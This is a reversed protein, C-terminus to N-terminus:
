GLSRIHDAMRYAMAIITLTPNEFGCTPFVSSGAIYLNKTGHVRCNEDVVGLKPDTHMRTTGMHHWSGNPPTGERLRKPDDWVDPEEPALIQARGLNSKGIEAAIIEQTRRISRRELDTIRWDLKIRRQGLADLEDGLTVRSMPNPSQEAHSHVPITVWENDGDDSNWKDAYIERLESLITKVQSGLHDPIEGKSLESKLTRWRYQLSINPTRKLTFGSWSNLIREQELVDNRLALGARIETNEVPARIYFNIDIKKPLVLKSAPLGIHEMFFRGVLDNQNGIDNLLLLRPNELGGAALVFTDAKVDFSNGSLTKVTIKGVTQNLTDLEIDTVNAYLITTINQAKEIDERYHTGFRTPPSNQYIKTVVRGAELPLMPHDAKESWYQADYNFAGLECIEHAKIYYPDLEQRSLPWGSHPVWDRKEFENAELPWCCGGWQATTGGFYRLRATDLPYYPFGIIDGQYLSQTEPDPDFGGSELMCVSLSSDKLAKAVTIGAAGAGVICINYTDTKNEIKRADLFM